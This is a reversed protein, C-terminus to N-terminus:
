AGLELIECDALEENLKKKRNANVGGIVLVRGDGLAVAAHGHRAKLLSPGERVVGDEGLVETTALSCDKKHAFGGLIMARRGPLAVAAHLGRQVDTPKSDRFWIPQADIGVFLAESGGVFVPSGNDLSVTAMGSSKFSLAPGKSWTGSAPDFLESSKLIANKANQGGCALVRGDPLLGLALDNRAEGLGGVATWQDARPDYVEATALRVRAHDRHQM